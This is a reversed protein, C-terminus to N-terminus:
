INNWNDKLMNGQQIPIIGKLNLYEELVKTIIEKVEFYELSFFNSFDSWINKNVWLFGKKKLQLIVGYEDNKWFRSAPYRESKVETLDGLLYKLYEWYVVNLQNETIIIKM